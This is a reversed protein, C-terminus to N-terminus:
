AAEAKATTDAVDLRDRLKTIESAADKLVQALTASESLNLLERLEKIPFATPDYDKAATQVTKPVGGKKTTAKRPM